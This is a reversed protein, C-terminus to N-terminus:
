SIYTSQMLVHSSLSPIISPPAISFISHYSPLQGSLLPPETSDPCRAPNYLLLNVRSCVYFNCLSDHTYGAHWLSNLKFATHFFFFFFGFGVLDSTALFAQM